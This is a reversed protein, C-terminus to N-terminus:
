QKGPKKVPKEHKGGAKSDKQDPKGPKRHGQTKKVETVTFERHIWDRWSQALM